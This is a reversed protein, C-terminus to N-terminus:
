KLDKPFLVKKTKGKKNLNWDESDFQISVFGATSVNAVPISGFKNVFDTLANNHGFIILNDIANPCSRIVEELQKLEFTYLDHKYIISELPFGINQAFILATNTTRKAASCWITYSKPLFDRAYLAILHADKIGQCTLGRDFDQMPVEWSSKAHRILILEKM